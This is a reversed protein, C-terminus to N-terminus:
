NILKFIVNLDFNGNMLLPDITLILPHQFIGQPVFLSEKSSYYNNFLDVDTNLENQTIFFGVLIEKKYVKQNLEFMKLHHDKEM